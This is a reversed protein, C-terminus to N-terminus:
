RNRRSLKQSYALRVSDVHDDWAPGVKMALPLNRSPFLWEGADFERGLPPLSIPETLFMGGREMTGKVLQVMRRIRVRYMIDNRCPRCVLEEKRQRYHTGCLACPPTLSVMTAKILKWTLPPLDEKIDLHVIEYTM